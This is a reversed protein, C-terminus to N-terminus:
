FAIARSLAMSRDKASKRIRYNKANKVRMKDRYADRSTSNKLIRLARDIKKDIEEDKKKKAKFAAKETRDIVDHSHDFEKIKTGEPHKFSRQKGYEDINSRTSLLSKIPLSRLYELNM